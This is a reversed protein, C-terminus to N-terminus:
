GVRRLKSRDFEAQSPPCGGRAVLEDWRNRRPSSLHQELAMFNLYMSYVTAATRRTPEQLVCLDPLEPHGDINYTQPDLPWSGFHSGFEDKRCFYRSGVRLVVSETEEDWAARRYGQPLVVGPFGYMHELRWALDGPLGEWSDQLHSRLDVCRDLNYGAQWWFEAQPNIADWDRGWDAAQSTSLESASMIHHPYPPVKLPLPETPMLPPLAPSAAADGTRPFTSMVGRPCHTYVSVEGFCNGVAIVGLADDFDVRGDGWIGPDPMGDFDVFLPEVNRYEGGIPPLPAHLFRIHPRKNINHHRAEFTSLWFLRRGSTGIGLGYFPPIELRQIQPTPNLPAKSITHLTWPFKGDEFHNMVLLEVGNPSVIPLRLSASAADAVSFAVEWIVPPGVLQIFSMRMDVQDLRYLEIACCRVVVVLDRWFAILHPVSRRSPVDLGGPPTPLDHITMTTWDYLHPISRGDRMACSVLSGRLGLVHSSGSVHAQERFARTEGDNRLSIVYVAPAEHGLGLALVFNGNQIELEGTKVRGPLYAWVVNSRNSLDYCALLSESNNSSAVFLRDGAALRLWTVSLSMPIVAFPVPNFAAKTSVLDWTVSALHRVLRELIPTDLLDIEALHLPIIAGKSVLEQLLTIWLFRSRTAVNNARCTQRFVVIDQPTLLLCILLLVDQPLSM